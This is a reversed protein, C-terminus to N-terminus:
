ATAFVEVLRTVFTGADVPKPFYADFGVRIANDAVENSHYATIAVVPINATAVNARLNDLLTWGDMGPMALDSIILTPRLQQLLELCEPGNNAIHVRIKHFRLIKAIVEALDPQDEVIIVEWLSVDDTM